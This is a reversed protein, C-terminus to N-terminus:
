ESRHFFTTSQTSKKISAILQTEPAPGCRWMGIFVTRVKEEWKARATASRGDVINIEVM